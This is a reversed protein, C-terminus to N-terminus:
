HARIPQRYDMVMSSMSLGHANVTNQLTLPSLDRLDLSEFSKFFVQAARVLKRLDAERVVFTEQLLAAASELKKAPHVIFNVCNVGPYHKGFWGSARNIQEAESREIEARTTKVENKCEWLLYTNSDLAWLCDPGEKWEKDPREAAFGLAQGLEMLGREFADSAGGFALASLIDSVAVNLGQYDEYQQVWKILREMRGQSLVTLRTVKVGEPPRLLLRSKGFAAVQKAHSEQRHTKYLFRAMEQLYWGTDAKSVAGHDLAEQLKKAASGYDGQIFLQEASLEVALAGLVTDGRTPAKAQNMEKVYFAKWDPDRTLCQNILGLLADPGSVGKRVDELAMDAVDLGIAVQANMQASFHKRTFQDRLLRVVDPGIVVIVSYDKEGRVSRGFGQEITRITRMLIAESDPRCSEEYLDVLSESYPKGDFVLIRCSDDPLDVGDYRNALALPPVYTGDVLRAVEEGVTETEAVTAGSSKWIKAAKFSPVLAVVGFKPARLNCLLHVVESRTLDDHILSPVLVMKEGSWTESEYTLPQRITEPSLQLGKVLFADDTVTASMFIRHPTKWYTGYADLRPVRPEIEVAAGSVVCHCYALSDKLLPWAFKISKRNNSASLIRAVDSEHDMWSWYPVPLIADTKGNAIDAYTGVGQAEVDTGFLRLIESYAEEDKPIRIRCSQRIADSCAHADDMLITGVEVADRYLGFKTLGNFLKQVSTVLIAKANEFEDPLEPDAVCTRIGFQRAQECTQQVLFNNPCIYVAPGTGSNLRSQLMMLGVLTKGQGTHLKVIVDRQGRRHAYWEDLVALQAPRLPGKDSARDLTEYLARPESM